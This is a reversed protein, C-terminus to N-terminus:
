GKGLFGLVAEDFLKPQEINALHAAEPLIELRAGEIRKQIERAADPHRFVPLAFTAETVFLDCPVTEFPACTPDDQRKYDGSVVARGDATEILVQADFCSM